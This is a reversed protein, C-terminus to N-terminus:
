SSDYRNGRENEKDLANCFIEYFCGKEPKEKKLACQVVDEMAQIMNKSARARYFEVNLRGSDASSKRLKSESMIVLDSKYGGIKARPDKLWLIGPESWVVDFGKRLVKLVIRSKMKTLIKFAGVSIHGLNSREDRLDAILSDDYYVPVSRAAAWEYLDKDLAAVIFNSVQQERLRCVWHMLTEREAYHAATLVISKNVALLTLLADIELPLRLTRDSRLEGDERERFPSDELLDTRIRGCTLLRSGELPVPDTESAAFSGSSECNCIGPRMRRQLCLGSEELCSSLKWPASLVTGRQGAYTGHAHALHTNISRVVIAVDEDSKTKASSTSDQNRDNVDYSDSIHVSMSCESADIVERRGAAITEHLFWNDHLGGRFVFHPIRGELLRPGDTNWAVVSIKEHSRLKGLQRVDGPISDSLDPDDVDLAPLEELDIGAGVVMFDKFQAAVKKLTRPLNSTLISDGDVLVSVTARSENARVIMSNFLLGNLFSKDVRTEVSLNFRSAAEMYGTEYGLLTVLPRPELRLWSRIARNNRVTDEGRFPRPAAFIEM